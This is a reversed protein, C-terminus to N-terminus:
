AHRETEPLSNGYYVSTAPYSRPTEACILDDLASALTSLTGFSGFLKEASRAARSNKGYANLLEVCLAEGWARFEKLKRGLAEHEAITFQSKM